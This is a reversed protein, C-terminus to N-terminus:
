LRLPDHGRLSLEMSVTTKKLTHNAERVYRALNFIERSMVLAVQFNEQCRELPFSRLPMCDNQIFRTLSTWPEKKVGGGGSWDGGSSSM